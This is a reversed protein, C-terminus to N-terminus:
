GRKKKGGGQKKSGGRAGPASVANYAVYGLGGVGVLAVLSGITSWWSKGKKGKKAKPADDEDAGAAQKKAREMAAARAREQRAFAAKQKKDEEQQQLMATYGEPDAKQYEELAVRDEERKKDVDKQKMREIAEGRSAARKKQWEKKDAKDKESMEWEEKEAVKGLEDTVVEATEASPVAWSLMKQCKESLHDLPTWKTLCLITDDHFMNNDCREEIDEACGKNLAIFDTCGSSIETPNAHEEKDKLCAGIDSGPTEPCASKVEAECPHGAWASQSLSLLIAVVFPLNMPGVM